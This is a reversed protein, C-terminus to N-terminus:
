SHLLRSSSSIRHLCINEVIVDSLPFVSLFFAYVPLEEDPDSNQPKGLYREDAWEYIVTALEGQSESDFTVAPNILM